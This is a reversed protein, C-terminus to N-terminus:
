GFIGWRLSLVRERKVASIRATSFRSTNPTERTWFLSLRSDTFFVISPVHSFSPLPVYPAAYLTGADMADDITTGLRVYDGVGLVAVIQTHGGSVLFLCYPFALPATLRPTLAHAELHNVALLPTDHVM